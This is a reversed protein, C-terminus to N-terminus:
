VMVNLVAPVRIVLCARTCVYVYVRLYTIVYVCGHRRRHPRAQLRVVLLRHLDDRAVHAPEAPPLEVAHAVHLVVCLHVEALLRGVAAVHAAAGVARRRLQLPVHTHVAALPGVGALDAALAEGTGVVDLLM